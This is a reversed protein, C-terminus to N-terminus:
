FSVLGTANQSNWWQDSNTGRASFPNPGFSFSILWLFRISYLVTARNTLAMPTINQIYNMWLTKLIMVHVLLSLDVIMSLLIPVRKLNVSYWQWGKKRRVYNLVRNKAAQWRHQPTWCQNIPIPFTFILINTSARKWRM